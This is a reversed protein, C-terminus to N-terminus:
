CPRTLPRIPRIPRSKLNDWFLRPEHPLRAFRRTTPYEALLSVNLTQQVALRNRKMQVVIERPGHDDSGVTLNAPPSIRLVVGPDSGRYWSTGKYRDVDALSIAWGAPASIISYDQTSTPDVRPAQKWRVFVYSSFGPVVTTPGYPPLPEYDAAFDAPANVLFALSLSVVSLVVAVAMRM